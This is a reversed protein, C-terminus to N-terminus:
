YLLLTSFLIVMSDIYDDNDIENSIGNSSIDDDGIEDFLM